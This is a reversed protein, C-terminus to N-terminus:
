GCFLYGLVGGEALDTLWIVKTTIGCTGTLSPLIYSINVKAVAFVRVRLLKVLLFWAEAKTSQEVLWDTNGWYAADGIGLIELM